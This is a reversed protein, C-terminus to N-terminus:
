PERRQESEQMWLTKLEKRASHLRSKVTGPPIRLIAAIEAVAFGELYHLTLVTRSQESLRGMIAQLDDHIQHDDPESAGPENGV